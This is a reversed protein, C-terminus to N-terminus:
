CGCKTRRCRVLTVPRAFFLPPFSSFRHISSILAHAHMILPAHPLLTAYSTVYSRKEKRKKKKTAARVARKVVSSVLKQEDDNGEQRIELLATCAKAVVEHAVNSSLM